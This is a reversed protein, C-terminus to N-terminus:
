ERIGVGRTILYYCAAFAIVVFTIIIAFATAMNIDSVGLVGYRFGNVM